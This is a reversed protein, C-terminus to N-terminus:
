KLVVRLAPESIKEKDFLLHFTGYRRLLPLVVRERVAQYGSLLAHHIDAGKANHTVFFFLM